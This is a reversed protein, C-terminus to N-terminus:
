PSSASANLAIAGGVGGPTAASGVFMEETLRVEDRPYVCWDNTGCQSCIHKPISTTTPAIGGTPEVDMNYVVGASGDDPIITATFPNTSDAWVYATDAKIGFAADAGRAIIRAIVCGRELDARSVSDMGQAVQVQVSDSADFNSTRGRMSDTGHYTLGRAWALFRDRAMGRAPTPPLCAAIAGPGATAASSTAATESRDAADKECAGALVLV